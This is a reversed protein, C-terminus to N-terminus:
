PVAIKPIRCLAGACRVRRDCARKERRFIIWSVPVFTIARTETVSNSCLEGRSDPPSIEYWPNNIPTNVRIFVYM